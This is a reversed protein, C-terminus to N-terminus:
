GYQRGELGRRIESDLSNDSQDGPGSECGDDNEEDQGGDDDQEYQRARAWEDQGGDEVQGARAGEDPGKGKGLGKREAQVGEDYGKFYALMMGKGDMMGGVAVRRFEQDWKGKGYPYGFSVGIDKGKGDGLGKRVCDAYGKGYGEDLGQRWSREAVRNLREFSVEGRAPYPEARVPSSGDGKGKGNGSTGHPGVWEEDSAKM